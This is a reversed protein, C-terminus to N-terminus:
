IPSQCLSSNNWLDEFYKTYLEFGKGSNGYKLTLTQQSPFGYLYPGVYIINDIRWYFDLTMADYVKIEISGSIAEKQIGAVWDILARISSSISDADEYEELARQEAFDSDPNMVLLRMHMGNNLNAIVDDRRISRFSRLGFAIGDLHKIDHSELLPDSENNKEARTKFIRQLGWESLVAAQYDDIDDNLKIWGGSTKRKITLALSSKVESVLSDSDTWFKVNDGCSKVKEHFSLIDKTKKDVKDHSLKNIDEIVFALITKGKKKAYDYERETFSILKNRIKESTGYRGATILLYIDSDDIDNQILKWSKEGTPFQEMGVPICGMKSIAEFVLKREESLDNKTSSIFVQYKRRITQKNKM